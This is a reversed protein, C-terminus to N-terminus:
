MTDVVGYIPPDQKGSSLSSLRLDGRAEESTVWHPPHSSPQFNLPHPPTKENDAIILVGVKVETKESVARTLPNPYGNHLLSGREERAGELCFGLLGM